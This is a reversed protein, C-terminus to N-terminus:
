MILSHLVKKLWAPTEAQLAKGKMAWRSLWGKRQLCSFTRADPFGAM